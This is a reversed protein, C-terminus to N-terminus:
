QVSRAFAFQAAMLVQKLPIGKETALKRCDEYEPAVNVIKGNQKAIKVRVKGYPTEVDVSV